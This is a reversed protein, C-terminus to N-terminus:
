LSPHVLYFSPFNPSGNCLVSCWLCLGLLLLSRTPSWCPFPGSWLHQPPVAMAFGTPWTPNQFSFLISQPIVCRERPPFIVLSQWKRTWVKVDQRIQNSQKCHVCTVKVILFFFPHKIKGQRLPPISFNANSSSPDTILTVQFCKKDLFPM